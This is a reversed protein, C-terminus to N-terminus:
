KMEYNFINKFYTFGKEMFANREVEKWFINNMKNKMLKLHEISGEFVM